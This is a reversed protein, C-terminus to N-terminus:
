GAWSRTVAMDSSWRRGASCSSSRACRRPTRGRRPRASSRRSRRARRTGTRSRARSPGSPGTRAATGRPTRRCPRRSSRARAERQLLQGPDVGRHRDGQLRADREARHRDVPEAGLLLLALPQRPQARALHEAREPQGLRVAAGVRAAGAGRRASSSAVPSHTILPVLHKMVLEPVSMVPRTVTVATVPRSAGVAARLDGRDDHRGAGGAERDDVVYELTPQFAESVRSSDNASQRTGAAFRSPSRPGRSRATGASGRRPGSRSRPAPWRDPGPSRRRTAHTRWPRPLREAPRDAGVLRDLELDGVHLHPGVGRPQGPAVRGGPQQVALRELLLGRDGLEVGGLDRDVLARSAM